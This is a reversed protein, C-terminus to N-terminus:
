IWVFDSAALGAAQFPGRSHERVGALEATRRARCSVKGQRGQVGECEHAYQVAPGFTNGLRLDVVPRRVDDVQAQRTEEKAVVQDVVPDGQPHCRGDEGHAYKRPRQGFVREVPPHVVVDADRECTLPVLLMVHIRLHVDRHRPEKRRQNEERDLQQDGPQKAHAAHRRKKRSPKDSEYGVPQHVVAQMVVLQRECPVAVQLRLMANVM